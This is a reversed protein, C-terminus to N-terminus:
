SGSGSGGSSSGGGGCGTLLLSGATLASLMVAVIKKKMRTGGKKIKSLIVKDSIVNVFYTHKKGLFNFIKVMKRKDSMKIIAIQVIVAFPSSHYATIKSIM